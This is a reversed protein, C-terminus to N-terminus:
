LRGDTGIYHYCNGEKCWSELLGYAYRYYLLRNNSDDFIEIKFDYKSYKRAYHYAMYWLTKFIPHTFHLINICFEHHMRIDAHYKM